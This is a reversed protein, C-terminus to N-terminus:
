DPESRRELGQEKGALGVLELMELITGHRESQPVSINRGILAVLVNESCTMKAFPRPM